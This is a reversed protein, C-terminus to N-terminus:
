RKFIKHAELLRQLATFLILGCYILTIVEIMSNLIIMLSFMIFGETREMLGAQYYFSKKCSKETLAGVTLFITMSIIISSSLLLLSLRSEPYILGLGIIISVEVIRDFTIDLLTGWPTSIKQKRAVSGDVADLFGSVWLLIVSLLKQEFLLVIGSSVGILFAIVTIQNPTFKYKIFGDSARDILPDIYKRGHTDLM